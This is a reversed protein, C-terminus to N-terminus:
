FHIKVAYFLTLENILNISIENRMFKEELDLLNVFFNCNLPEQISGKRDLFHQKQMNSEQLSIRERSFCGFKEMFSAAM